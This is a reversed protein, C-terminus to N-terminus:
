TATIDEPGVSAKSAETLSRLTARTASSKAACACPWSGRTLRDRRTNSPFSLSSRSRVRTLASSVESPNRTSVTRSSSLMLVDNCISPKAWFASATADIRMTAASAATSTQITLRAVWSITSRRTGVPLSGAMAASRVTSTRLVLRM